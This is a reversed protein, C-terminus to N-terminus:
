FDGMRLATEVVFHITGVVIRASMGLHGIHTAAYIAIPVPQPTDIADAVIRRDDSSAALASM